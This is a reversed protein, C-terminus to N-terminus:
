YKGEEFDELGINKLHILPSIRENMLFYAREKENKKGNRSEHEYENETM